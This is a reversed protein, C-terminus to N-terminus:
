TLYGTLWFVILFIPLIWTCYWRLCKPFRIGKGTNVEQEFREWGWGYRRTCFLLYGLAGFPLLNNSVLFDEADMISRGLIQVHDLVNMGLVAPLSLLIMPLVNMLTAKRRAWGTLDMTCAVINEFAAVVTSFSAMMVAVFFASGILWGGSMKSFIAPMTIIILDPGNAPDIGYTFCAPFIILGATLAVFTDLAVVNITEGTLRRENSLYSGFVCMSGAGMGLTFFVQGFAASVVEYLGAKELNEFNPYLYFRLGEGAGSLSLSYVALGILMVFLIGLMIKSAKEVGNQLGGMCVGFGALVILVVLAGYLLPAQSLAASTAKLESVSMGNLKGTLMAFTFYLMQASIVTYFMQFVYNGIYQPIQAVKWGKRDPRLEQLARAPSRHSGRGVAIEMALLPVGMLVLCALYILVFIAGGYQGTIYPFRYINGLGIACGAATLVFGLRSSFNERKM